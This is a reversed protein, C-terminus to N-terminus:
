LREKRTAPVSGSADDGALRVRVRFRDARYRIQSFAVPRGHQDQVVRDIGFLPSSIDLELAAAVDTDAAMAFLSQEAGGIQIGAQGLLDFIATKALIRASWGKTLGAPLWATSYSLPGAATFRVRVIERLPTGPAVGLQSAPEGSASTIRFLLVRIRSDRRIDALNSLLGNISAELPLEGATYRVVTGRGRSREVMGVAALDNLARKATIRSVGFEDAVQLESPLLAGDGYQGREIRGRLTMYVRHYLPLVSRALAPNAAGSRMLARVVREADNVPLGSFPLQSGGRLIM